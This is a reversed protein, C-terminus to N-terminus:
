QCKKGLLQKIKLELIQHHHKQTFKLKVRQRGAEGMKQNLKRDQLLRDLKEALDKVQFPKALFGTQGNVVIGTPGANNWAVVPVGAAMAEVMGKGFDEEPASYVYVVANLYADQLVEDDIFGVFYVQEVLRLKKVLRKLQNFYEKQEKEVVGAILLNTKINKKSLQALAELAYEFKKKPMIRNTVLIYPKKVTKGKIKVKGDWRRSFNIKSKPLPDAGSPADIVSRGYIKEFLGQAYVGTTLIADARTMVQWDLWRIVPRAVKMIVRIPLIVDTLLGSEQDVKRPYLLGVPYPMFVLYPKKFLLAAVFALWPGGQNEGIFLDAQRFRWLLWPALVYTLLATLERPFWDLYPFFGRVPFKKARQPFCSKSAVLPAWAEVEYGQKNLYELQEFILREAGGSFFFEQHFIIIKSRTM